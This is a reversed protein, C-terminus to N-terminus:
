RAFRVVRLPTVAVDVRRDHSETPVTALLEDDFVLGVVLAGAPVRGLARDYSGGGQGLRSGDADIASSPVVVVAAEAVAQTGLRAGTPEM